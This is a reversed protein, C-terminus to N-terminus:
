AARNRRELPFSLIFTTGNGLSSDVQIEGHHEKIINSVMSLGIGTGNERSKTTFFPTYIKQIVDKAMGCGNDTIRVVIRDQDYESTIDVQKARDDQISDFADRANAILNQFISELKNYQGWIQPLDEALSAKVTIGSTELQRRLMLLSDNIPENLNIATWNATKDERAYTSGM